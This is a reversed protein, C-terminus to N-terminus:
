ILAQPKRITIPMIHQKITFLYTRPEAKWTKYITIEFKKFEAKEM